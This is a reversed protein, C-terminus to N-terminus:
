PLAKKLRPAALEIQNWAHVLVREPQRGQLFHDLAKGRALWVKDWCEGLGVSQRGSQRFIALIRCLSPCLPRCLTSTKMFKGYSNLYPRKGCRGQDKGM